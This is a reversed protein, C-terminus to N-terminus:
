PAVTAPSTFLVLAFPQTPQFGIARYARAAPENAAFLVARTVDKARAEALHLAVALRAYGRGRLPPPTYVGGVQVIEPLTANFGTLAVPEGDLLLVRHSDQALWDDVNAAARTPAEEAPMAQTEMTAAARWGIVSDRLAASLPVLTAGSGNPVRLDRLDLAFGPEDEDVRAPLGTLGLAVFVPRVSAAPGIAGTVGLGALAARLGSLAAGEALVPMLMGGQTLAVLSDPGIWWFRTAHDHNSVFGGDGLGHARLNALPFMAGDIRRTLLAELAGREEPGAERIM